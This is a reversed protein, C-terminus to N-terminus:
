NLFIGSPTGQGDITAGVLSVLGGATINVSAGNISTAGKGGMTMVGASYIDMPLGKGSELFVGPIVNPYEEMPKEIGILYSSINGIGWYGSKTYLDIDGLAVDFGVGGKKSVVTLANPILGQVSPAKSTVDVLWASSQLPFISTPTINGSITTRKKGGIREHYDGTVDVTFSGPSQFGYNSLPKTSLTAGDHSVLTYNVSSSARKTTVTEVLDGTKLEVTGGYERKAEKTAGGPSSEQSNGGTGEGSAIEIKSGAKLTLQNDALLSINKGRANIEGDHSTIDINGYVVISMAKSTSDGGKKSSVVNNKNGVEILLAEGIKFRTSGASAVDFRGSSPDDNRKSTTIIVSGDEAFTISKGDSCIIKYQVDGEDNLTAVKVLNGALEQKVNINKPDTATTFSTGCGGSASQKLKESLNPSEKAIATAGPSLDKGGTSFKTSSDKSAEFYNTPSSTAM